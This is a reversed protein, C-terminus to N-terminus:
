KGYYLKYQIMNRFQYEKLMDGDILRPNYLKGYNDVVIHRNYCPLISKSESILYNYYPSLHIGVSKLVYPILLDPGLYETNDFSIKFNSLILAEINYRRYINLLKNDTNFYHLKELIGDGNESSLYPLHDGLFIIITENKISQIYDYLRKLEKSADSLGEVYSLLVGEDSQNLNSSKIEFSYNDYKDVSYPMHNQMTTLFYFVGDEKKNLLEIIKDVSYHDSIYYGKYNDPNNEFSIRHQFGLYPYAKKENYLADSYAKFLYSEYGNQHLVSLLNEKNKFHKDVLQIYPIYTQNYYALNFSTLLEFEVNGTRGGYTPSVMKILKNNKELDHYDSLVDKSFDLEEIKSIDFFSESLFVIINPKKLTVNTDEYNKIKNIEKENYYEPKFIRIELFNGYMSGIIGYYNAYFLQNTFSNYDEQNHNYFVKQVLMTSFKMPLSIIVLLIIPIILKFQRNISFDLVKIFFLIILAFCGFQLFLLVTNTKFFSLLTGNTLSVIDDLGTLLLIDSLYIPEKMYFIKIENLFLLLFFFITLIVNSKKLSRTIFLLFSFFSYVIITSILPHLVFIFILDGEYLALFFSSLLILLFPNIYM